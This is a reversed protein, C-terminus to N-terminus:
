RDGGLTFRLGQYALWKQVSQEESFKEVRGLEDAILAVLRHRGVPATWRESSSSLELCAGPSTVNLASDVGAPRMPAM